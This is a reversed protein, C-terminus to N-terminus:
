YVAALAKQSRNFQTQQDVVVRRAEEPSSLSRAIGAMVFQFGIMNPSIDLVAEGNCCHYGIEDPHAMAWALGDGILQKSRPDLPSAELRETLTQCVSQFIPTAKAAKTEIRAKWANKTTEEDFLQALNWLLFYRLPTWYSSWTVAPNLGADFVQDYFSIIAHDVKEIRYLNFTLDCDQQIEMLDPVIEKLRHLGLEAAHLREVELKTRLAKVRELASADLDFPSQLVGYYLRPQTSDFLNNGTHGSEDVYFFLNM